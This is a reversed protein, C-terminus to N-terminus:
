RGGAVARGAAAVLARRHGLGGAVAGALGAVVVACRIVRGPRRLGGAVAIRMRGTAAVVALPVCVRLSSRPVALAGRVTAAGVAALVVGATAPLRRRRCLATAVAARVTATVLACM